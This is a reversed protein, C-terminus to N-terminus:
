ANVSGAAIRTAAQIVRRAECQSEPTRETGIVHVLLPGVRRTGSEQRVYIYRCGPDTDELTVGCAGAWARASRISGFELMLRLRGRGDDSITVAKPKPLRATDVKLLEDLM